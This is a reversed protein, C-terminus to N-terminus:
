NLVRVQPGYKAKGLMDEQYTKALHCATCIASMNSLYDTGGTRLPKVHGLELVGEEGCNRCVIRQREKLHCNTDMSIIGRTGKMQCAVVEKLVQCGYSAHIQGEYPAHMGQSQARVVM